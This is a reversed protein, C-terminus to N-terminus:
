RAHVTSFVSPHLLKGGSESPVNQCVVRLVHGPDVAESKLVVTRGKADIVPEIELATEGGGLAIAKVSYNEPKVAEFRDVPQSFELVIGDEALTMATIRYVADDGALPLFGEDGGGLLQGPDMEVLTHLPKPAVGRLLVSGQWLGGAKGPVIEILHRSVPCTLILKGTGNEELFTPSVPRDGKTLEAPLILSPLTFPLPAPPTGAPDTPPPPLETLSLFFGDTYDPMSLRVALLGDRRLAFSEIPLESETVPISQGTAPVWAMLRAKKPDGAKLAHPSLAYLLRGHADAVPGATIVVGENRSPWDRVLAQFFDLEVDQDTDFAQTLEVPSASVISYGPGVALFPLTNLKVESYFEWGIQSLGPSFKAVGVQGRHNLFFVNGGGIPAIARVTPAQDNPTIQIVRRERSEPAPEVPTKAAEQSTGPGPLAAALCWLCVSISLAKSLIL